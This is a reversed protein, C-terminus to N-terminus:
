MPNEEAEKTIREALLTSVWTQQPIRYLSADGEMESM